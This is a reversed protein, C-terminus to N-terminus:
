YVMLTDDGGILQINHTNLYECLEQCDRINPIKDSIKNLYEIAEDNPETDADSTGNEYIKNYKVWQDKTLLYYYITSIDHYYITRIDHTMVLYMETKEM